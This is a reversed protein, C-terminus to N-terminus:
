KCNTEQEWQSKAEHNENRNRKWVTSILLWIVMSLQETTEQITIYWIYWKDIHIKVKAKYHFFLANLYIRSSNFNWKKSKVSSWPLRISMAILISPLKETKKISAFGVNIWDQISIWDDRVNMWSCMGTSFFGYVSKEMSFWMWGFLSCQLLTQLLRKLYALSLCNLLFTEFLVFVINYQNM